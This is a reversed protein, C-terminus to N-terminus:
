RQEDSGGPLRAVADSLMAEAAGLAGVEVPAAKQKRPEFAAVVDLRADRWEKAAAIVEAQAALRTRLRAIEARTEESDGRVVDVTRETM